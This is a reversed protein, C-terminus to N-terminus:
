KIFFIQWIKEQKRNMEGGKYCKDQFDGIM